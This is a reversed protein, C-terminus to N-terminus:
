ELTYDKERTINDHLRYLIKFKMHPYIKLLDDRSGKDEKSATTATHSLMSGHTHFHVTPRSGPSHIYKPTVSKDSENEDYKAFFM